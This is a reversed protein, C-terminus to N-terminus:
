SHTKGTRTIRELPNIALFVGFQFWIENDIESRALAIQVWKLQTIPKVRFHCFISRTSVEPLLVFIQRMHAALLEIGVLLKDGGRM